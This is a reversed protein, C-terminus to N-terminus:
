YVEVGNTKRYASKGTQKPLKWGKAKCAVLNFQELVKDDLFKCHVNGNKFCKIEFFGWEYWTGFEKPEYGKTFSSEFEKTEANYSRESRAWFTDYLTPFNRKYKRDYKQTKTNFEESILTETDYNQGTVHCLAKTLDDLRTTDWNFTPNGYHGHNLRMYPAIFKKGVFYDSNTKWGEGTRNNKHHSTLWDFMEVVVGNMRDAHTGVIVEMMKYINTLKFPVQTQQEVFKNIKAAVTKTMYKDMNMKAFVSKWASKQLEKKFEDRTIEPRYSGTTKYGGFSIQLNKAIPNILENMKKNSAEVENFLKVAGVYRQVIATLENYKVIGEGRYNQEQEETLDFYDSFEDDGAVKPKFLRIMSVSVNTKREATSFVEGLYEVYGFKSINQQLERRFRTHTYNITDSNCLSVITCGDPAIALAHNIHKDASDFPPNMIIFDVHSIEEAKVNFFNPKLFQAKISSIKALDENLECILVKTGKSKITDVLDGKGAQPELVVKDQLDLGLLMTEAVQKPTPYFNKDFIGM